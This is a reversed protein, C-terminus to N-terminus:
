VSRGVSARCSARGNQEKGAAQKPERRSLTAPCRHFVKAHGDALDRLVMQAWGPALGGQKRVQLGQPTGVRQGTEDSGRRDQDLEVVLCDTRCPPFVLDSSCVDSSWDSIRM